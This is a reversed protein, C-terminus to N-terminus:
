EFYVAPHYIVPKGFLNVHGPRGGLGKIRSNFEDIFLQADIKGNDVKNQLRTLYTNGKFKGTVGPTYQVRKGKTNGLKLLGKYADETIGGSKSKLGGTIFLYPKLLKQLIRPTNDILLSSGMQQGLTPAPANGSLTSGSPINKLGKAFALQLAKSITGNKARPTIAARVSGQGAIAGLKLDSTYPINGLLQIKDNWGMNIKNNALLRNDVVSLGDQIIGNDTIPILNREIYGPVKNYTRLAEVRDQIGYKVADKVGNLRSNLLRRPKDSLSSYGLLYGPNLFNFLNPYPIKTISAVMDGYDTYGVNKSLEDVTNGGVTSIVFAMPNPLAMFGPLIYNKAFQDRGNRIKSTHKNIQQKEEENKIDELYNNYDEKQTNNRVYNPTVTYGPLWQIIENEEM